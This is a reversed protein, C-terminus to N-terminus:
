VQLFWSKLMRLARLLYRPSPSLYLIPYLWFCYSQFITDRGQFSFLYLPLSAKRKSQSVGKFAFQSARRCVLRKLRSFEDPSLDLEVQMNRFLQLLIEVFDKMMDPSSIEQWFGDENGFFLRIPRAPYGHLFTEIMRERVETAKQQQVRAKTVSQQESHLRLCCLSETIVRADYGGLALRMWLDFDEAPALTENYGGLQLVIDKRFMVAPHALPTWGELLSILYDAYSDILPLKWEGTLKGNQDIIQLWTGVVAVQPSVTDLFEVQRELRNPASTDDQDLRAVYEGRALHLGKNLSPVQGLNRENRVLQIRADTYSEILSCSDDTSADDIILFEFDKFTQGLISDIAEGLYPLGNYVTMLVTVKPAM